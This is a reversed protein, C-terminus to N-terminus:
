ANVEGVGIRQGPLLPSAHDVRLALLVKRLSVPPVTAVSAPKASDPASFRFFLILAWIAALSSWALRRGALWGFSDDPTPRATRLAGDSETVSERVATVWRRRLSVPAEVEPLRQGVRCLGHAVNQLEALKARCPACAALHAETEVRETEELAGVALLGLNAEHRGCKSFLWNVSRYGTLHVSPERHIGNEEGTM